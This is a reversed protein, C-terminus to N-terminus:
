SIILYTINFIQLFLKRIVSFIILVFVIAVTTGIGHGGFFQPVDGALMSKLSEKMEDDMDASNLMELLEKTSPVYNPDSNMMEEIKNLNADLNEMNQLNDNQLDAM